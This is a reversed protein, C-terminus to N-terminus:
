ESYELLIDLGQGKVALGVQNVYFSMKDGKEFTVGKVDHMNTSYLNGAPIELFPNSVGIFTGNKAISVKISAGTPAELVGIIPDEEIKMKTLVRFEYVMTDAELDEWRKSLGIQMKKNTKPTDIFELGDNTKKVAVLKGGSGTYNAPTDTLETFTKTKTDDVYKKRAAQNDTSPNSAPLVPISSFTKVGAITEAGTKHVLGDTHYKLKKPTIITTDDTGTDTQANTAIKAYGVTSETAQDLNTQVIFFNSGVSAHTGGGNDTTCIIMDGVEVAPGSAGGIKGAVTVKYSDGKTSAPYNPNTNCALGTPTKIGNQIASQMSVVLGLLADNFQKISDGGFLSLEPYDSSIPIDTDYLYLDGNDDSSTWGNVSKLFDGRKKMTQSFSDYEWYEINFTAFGGSSSRKFRLSSGLNFSAIKDLGFTDKDMFGIRISDLLPNVGPNHYLAEWDLTVENSTNLTMFGEGSGSSPALKVWQDGISLKSYFWVAKVAGDKTGDDTQVYLDGIEFVVPELTPIPETNPNEITGFYKQPLQGATLFKFWGMEPVGTYVYFEIPIRSFLTTEWRLYFYGPAFYDSPMNVNPDDEGQLLNNGELLSEILDLMLKEANNSRSHISRVNQSKVNEPIGTKIFNPIDTGVANLIDRIETIDAMM